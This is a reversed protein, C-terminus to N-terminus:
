FFTKLSLNIARSLCHQAFTWYEPRSNQRSIVPMGEETLAMSKSSVKHLAIMFDPTLILAFSMSSQWKTPFLPWVM